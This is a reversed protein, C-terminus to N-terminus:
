AINIIMEGGSLGYTEYNAVRKAAESTAAPTNGTVLLATKGRSVALKLIAQNDNLSLGDCVIGFVKEVMSNVCPNGIIILNHAYDAETIQNDLKSEFPKGSKYILMSSIQVASAVDMAPANAGVVFISDESFPNPLNKLDFSGVKAKCKYATCEQESCDSNSMCEVECKGKTIKWEVKDRCGDPKLVCDYYKNAMCVSSDCENICSPEEIEVPQIEDNNNGGEPCIFDCTCDPPTGSVSWEGAICDAHDQKMCQEICNRDESSGCGSIFLLLAMSFLLLKNM